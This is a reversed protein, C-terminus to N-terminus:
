TFRLILRSASLQLESKLDRADAWEALPLWGDDPEGLMVALYYACFKVARALVAEVTIPADEIEAPQHEPNILHDCGTSRTLSECSM